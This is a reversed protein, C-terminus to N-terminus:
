VGTGYNEFSRGTNMGVNRPIGLPGVNENTNRVRLAAELSENFPDIIKGPPM